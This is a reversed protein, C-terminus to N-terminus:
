LERGLFINKTIKIFYDYSERIKLIIRVKINNIVTTRM